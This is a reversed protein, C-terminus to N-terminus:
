LKILHFTNLFVLGELGLTNKCAESREVPGARRSHSNLPCLSVLFTPFDTSCFPALALSHSSPTTSCVLLTKNFVFGTLVCAPKTRVCHCYFFILIHNVNLLRADTTLFM